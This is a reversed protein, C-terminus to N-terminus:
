GGRTAVGQDRLVAPRGVRQAAGRLVLSTTLPGRAGRARLYRSAYVPASGPLPRVEVALRGSAGPPLFTSLRVAVTRGGPVAVTRPPPLPTRTGVVRVPTVEVRADAGLASLLLTSETPRDITVDTLVAPGSLPSGSGAYSIERVPGQQADDLLVAALVPGGDSTVRVALGGGAASRALDVATTSGAAVPVAELGAPVLQGDATTLQVRVTTDQEGPNAVLLRRPSPTSPPSVAVGPVVVESSPPEAQPVWEVGAPTRGDWRTHRVAAAVRGRAAVVHVALLDRDPALADLPVTRRSRPAVLLGHGPRADAPGRATLVTVDVTAAADDPNALVLVGQQGVVTAGGLFWAETGAPGCRLGALGRLPGDDGRAVQEVELGAALPGEAGVVYADAPQPGAALGVVVEGPRDLPVTHGSDGGGLRQGRIRGGAATQADRAVGVSVRTQVASGHQVVDPCVALAGVVPVDYAAPEHLSPPTLRQGAVGFALLGAVALVLAPPRRM